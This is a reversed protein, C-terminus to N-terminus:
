YIKKINEIEKFFKLYNEYREKLITNNEYELVVNCLEKKINTHLCKNSFKCNQELVKFDPYYEKLDYKDKLNIKVQSFGPTDAIFGEYVYFLETNRTTHKGRGLAKSIDQTKQNINNSLNNLFSSKGVGTQGTIVTIKDKFINNNNFNFDHNNIYYIDLDLKNKYYDLKERLINTKDINIDTKTILLIPKINNFFTIFLFTDLLNFSFEPEVVSFVLIAQDVNAIDPRVLDNKRELIEDILYKDNNKEYICIDGVKPIIQIKKIDKKNKDSKNFNFKSDKLVKISRLKGKVLAKLYTNNELDLLDYYLSDKKVILAKM